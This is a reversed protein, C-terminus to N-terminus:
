GDADVRPDLLVFAIDALLNGLVVVLTVILTLLTLLAFDLSLASQVLAQGVGPWAFLSEVVVSGAVLEPLRAGSLAVFPPLAVPVIHRWVQTRYPIGRARAGQLADSAMADVVAERMSLLLWPLQTVALVLAPLLLHIALSHPEIDAGPASVGGSPLWNLWLAFIAIAALAVAFPPTAQLTAAIASITKDRWGYPKLGALLGVLLSVVTALLLGVASLLMTWPLREALVAAVPQHYYRSTGLDGRLLGWIWSCWARFWGVDLQLSASLQARQAQSLEAVRGGMYAELPDFPSLAALAFVALTILLLLPLAFLLRRCVLRVIDARRRQWSLMLANM